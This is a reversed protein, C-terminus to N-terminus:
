RGAEPVAAASESLASEMTLDGIRVVTTVSYHYLRGNELGFDDFLPEILPQRNVSQPPFLQDDLRRYVRYGLTEAEPREEAVGQWQLRAMRDLGSAVLGTPAPPPSLYSGQITAAEGEHGARTFPVIRYRYGFGPQLDGDRLYLRNGIRRAQRLYELDIEQLLTSTDRCEPCDKGAAFRMRLVRFGQLDTLPSGDQNRAPLEWALLLSDGRQQLAINEPAAPLPLLAPRVPGKRGCGTATTILFLLLLLLMGGPSFPRLPRHNM